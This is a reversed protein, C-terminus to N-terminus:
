GDERMRGSGKGIFGRLQQFEDRNFLLSGLTYALIGLLIAGALGALRAPLARGTFDVARIFGWVAGGMVASALATRLGVAALGSKEIRGIKRELLLFLASMNFLSSISLALAIGAVQFPRMLALSMGIYVVTVFAGVVVPTRTDKLSYFAPALIKVASVFPLGVAFFVLCSSTMATSRADFAGYEFLAQIIPRNLVLLGVAAPFTILIIMKLSFVLTRHMGAFDRKVAMESLNPLLAIGLAISFLGLTLEQIRSSYYLSSVSGRGLGTAIARSIAMNIQYIGAGFIGPIMLRAVKRVAPHTFSLLPKFRMGKRWVFPIQFALQLAGGVVVGVAFLLAPERVRGAFILAITIIALNFLVPTFAPVFFKHFCNLIAMILAALSVFFIYPFMIRTLLVTLETQGAHFGMAILKVLIPALLVGLVAVAAMVLTLDFFFANAFRWLEEKKKEQKYQTFVPIFAATMAGEATLRRLLNPILFAIAFEDMHKETGLYYAQLLDRLYGFVRSILTPVSVALTSRLMRRNQAKQEM